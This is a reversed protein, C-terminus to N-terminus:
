GLIGVLFLILAALAAGAMAAMSTTLLGTVLWALVSAGRGGRRMEFGEVQAETAKPQVMAM